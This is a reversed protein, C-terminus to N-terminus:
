LSGQTLPAKFNHPKAANILSKSLRFAARISKMRAANEM